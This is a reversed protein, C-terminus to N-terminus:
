FEKVSKMFEEAYVGVAKMSAEPRTAYGEVSSICDLLASTLETLKKMNALRRADENTEGVPRVPGTLKLVVEYLEM